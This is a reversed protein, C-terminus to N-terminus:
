LTAYIIKPTQPQEKSASSSLYKANPSAQYYSQQHYPFLGKANHLVNREKSGKSPFSLRQHNNVITPSKQILKQHSPYDRGWGKTKGKTKRKIIRKQKKNLFFFQDLTNLPPLYTNPIRRM